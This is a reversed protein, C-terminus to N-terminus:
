CEFLVLVVFLFMIGVLSYGVVILDVLKSFSSIIKEFVEMVFIGDSDKIKNFLM